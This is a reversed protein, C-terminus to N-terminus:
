ALTGGPRQEQAIINRVSTSILVGLRKQDATGGEATGDININITTSSGMKENPVITGASDPVFLEPGREGVVSAKGVPPRGGDAFLGGFIKGLFGGGGGSKSFAGSINGIIKDLQADIIKDRIRNLVNSMADGFSQAGTIAERLNDRINNKIEDGVAKMKEKLKDAEIQQQQMVDVQNKLSETKKLHNILEQADKKEFTEKIERIKDQLKLDEKTQGGLLGRLKRQEELNSIVFDNFKKNKNLEEDRNQVGETIKLQQEMLAIEEKLEKIFRQKGTAAHGVAKSAEVQALYLKKTAIAEKELEVATRKAEDGIGKLNNNFDEAENNLKKTEESAEILHTVLIGLAVVLAGVGTKILALKLTNVAAAAKLASIGVTANSAAYFANSNAAIIAASAAAAFKVKLLTIGATVIPVITAMGKLALTIGAIIAAAQGGSSNLFNIITTLGKVAPSLVPLVAKGLTEGLDRWAEGLSDVDGAFGRAGAQALKSYSEDVINLIMNHAEAVKNAKMLSKIVETQTKSFAIGSRNLASLNREPDQLAKALQMFSTKVDVQNVQAIDAASQAVREYADVGINRFSTLLNFGRTFDEQNFLTQNGLENAVEQLKRLSDAGEGLNELGQTLITLDRERDMFAKLGSNVTAFAAGLAIIPGMTAALSAALGKAAASTGALSATTGKASASLKNTAVSTNNLAAVAGRADVTLKVNSQAM